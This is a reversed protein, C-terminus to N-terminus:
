LLWVSVSQTNTLFFLFSVPHTNSLTHTHTLSFLPLSTHLSPSLATPPPPSSPPLCLSLFSISPSFSLSLSPLLPLPLSPPVLSQTLMHSSPLSFPFPSPPPTPLPPSGPSLCFSLTLSHSLFLPLLPLLSPPATSLLFLVAFHFASLIFSFFVFSLYVSPFPYYNCLTRISECEFNCSFSLRLVFLWLLSVFVCSNKRFLHKWQLVWMFTFFYKERLIIVHVSLLTIVESVFQLVVLCSGGRWLVGVGRM